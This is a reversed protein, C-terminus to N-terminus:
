RLAAFQISYDTRDEYVMMPVGGCVAMNCNYGVDAGADVLEPAIDVVGEGAHDDLYAMRLKANGADQYCVVADHGLCPGALSTFDCTYASELPIPAEVWGTAGSLQQSFVLVPFSDSTRIYITALKSGIQGISFHRGGAYSFPLLSWYTDANDDGRWFSTATGYHTYVAVPAGDVAALAVAHPWPGMNVDNTWSSGEANGHAARFIGETLGEYWVYAIIPIGEVVAMSAENYQMVSTSVLVPASWSAGAADEARAFYLTPYPSISNLFCLGPFGSIATLGRLHNAAHTHDVAVVPSGWSTAEADNARVYHVSQVDGLELDLNFVEYQIYAVAPVGDIATIRPEFVEDGELPGDALTIIDWEGSLVSVSTTVTATLGDASRVRLVPEVSGPSDYKHDASATEDSDLDYSGDGDFDWDYNVISSGNVTLAAADFHATFGVVDKSPDVLLEGEVILDGLRLGALEAGSTGTMLLVLLMNGDGNIFPATSGFDVPSGPVYSFWQWRNNEFNAAAIYFENEDAPTAAFSLRLQPPGDYDPINLQWIAYALGGVAAADGSFNPSFVAHQEDRTVRNQPLEDDYDAGQRVLAGPTFAVQRAPLAAALSDPAPLQLGTLPM